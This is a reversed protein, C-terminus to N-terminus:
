FVIVACRKIIRQQKSCQRLLSSAAKICRDAFGGLVRSCKNSNEAAASTYLIERQM